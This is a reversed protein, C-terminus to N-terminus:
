DLLERLMTRGRERIEVDGFTDYTEALVNTMKIASKRYMERKESFPLNGLSCNGRFGRVITDNKAEFLTLNGLHNKNKVGDICAKGSIHEVHLDGRITSNGGPTKQRNVIWLIFNLTAPTISKNTPECNPLIIDYAGDVKPPMVIQKKVDRSSIVIHAANVWPTRNGISNSELCGRQLMRKGIDYLLKDDIDKKGYFVHLPVIVNWTLDAYRKGFPTSMLKPCISACEEAHRIFLEINAKTKVIAKVTNNLYNKPPIIIEKNFLLSAMLWVHQVRNLREITESMEIQKDHCATIFLNRMNEYPQMRQGRNNARDMLLAAQVNDAAQKKTAVTQDLLFGTFEVIDVDMKRIFDRCVSYGKYLPHELDENGNLNAINGLQLFDEEYHSKIRPYKKWRNKRKTDEIVKSKVKWAGSDIFVIKQLEHIVEHEDESMTRQQLHHLCAVLFLLATIARCQGDFVDTASGNEVTIFDGIAYRYGTSMSDVADRLFTIVDREPDWAYTRQNIPICITWSLLTRLTIKDLTYPDKYTAM